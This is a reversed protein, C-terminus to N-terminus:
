PTAPKMEFPGAGQTYMQVKLAVARWPRSTQLPPWSSPRRREQVRRRGHRRPRRPRPRRYWQRASQAERQARKPRRRKVGPSEQLSPAGADPSCSPTSPRRSRRPRATWPSARSPSLTCGTTTRPSPRGATARSRQAQFRLHAPSHPRPPSRAPGDRLSALIRVRGLACQCMARVAACFVLIINYARVCARVCAYPCIM